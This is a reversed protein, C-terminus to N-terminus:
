AIPWLAYRNEIMQATSLAEDGDMKPTVVVNRLHTDESLADVGDTIIVNRFSSRRGVRVGEWFVSNEVVTDSPVHGGEGIVAGRCGQPLETTSLNEKNWVKLVEISNALYGALTSSECWFSGSLYAQIPYGQSMLKPYIENVSDSPGPPIWDLVESELIQVGTYIGLYEVRSSQEELHQPRNRAFGTINRESDVFVPNYPDGESYPVLVMTVLAGSREHQSLVDRLDEEFYTKGNALVLRDKGIFDRVKDLCGATGLIEKELSFQVNQSFNESIVEKVTNPLHHLNVM